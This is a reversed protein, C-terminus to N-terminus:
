RDEKAEATAAPYPLMSQVDPAPHKADTSALLRRLSELVMGSVPHHLSMKDVALTLHEAYARADDGCIFVGRAEGEFAM